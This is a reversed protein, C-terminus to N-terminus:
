KDIFRGKAIITISDRLAKWMAENEDSSLEMILSEYMLTFDNDPTREALLKIAYSMPIKKPSILDVDGSWIVEEPYGVKPMTGTKFWVAVIPDDPSENRQLHTVQVTPIYQGHNVSIAQNGEIGFKKHVPNALLKGVRIIEEARSRYTFHIFTDESLNVKITESM